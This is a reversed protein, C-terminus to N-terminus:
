TVKERIYVQYLSYLAEYLNLIGLTTPQIIYTYYHRHLEQDCNEGSHETINGVGNALKLSWGLGRGQQYNQRGPINSVFKYHKLRLGQQEQLRIIQKCVHIKIITMEHLVFSLVHYYLPLLQNKLMVLGALFSKWRGTRNYTIYVLPTAQKTQCSQSM